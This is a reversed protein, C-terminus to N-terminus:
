SLSLRASAVCSSWCPWCPSSPVAAAVAPGLSTLPSGGSSGPGGQRRQNLIPDLASKTLEILGPAVERSRCRRAIEISGVEWGSRGGGRDGRSRGAIQGRDACGELQEAQTFGLAESLVSALPIHQPAHGFPAGGEGPWRWRWWCRRRWRRWRQRVGPPGVADSAEEPVVDSVTHGRM